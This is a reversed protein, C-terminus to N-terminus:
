SNDRPKFRVDENIDFSVVPNGISGLENYKIQVAIVENEKGNFEVLCYRRSNYIFDEGVNLAKVKVM